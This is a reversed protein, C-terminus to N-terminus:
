LESIVCQIYGDTFFQSPNVEFYVTTNEMNQNSNVQLGESNYFGQKHAQM